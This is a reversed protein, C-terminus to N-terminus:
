GSSEEPGTRPVEPLHTHRLQVPEAKQRIRINMFEVLVSFFMAFYAYGRLNLSHAAEANWGEVVLLVGILILFSLALMKMTPHQEVFRSIAGAAFVMVAAAILIATVMVPINGSLGIATIVSDLSFVIDILAIQVMVGGLTAAQRASGHGRETGELKDHIEITSKAILFGGGFLLILDRGSLANGLVTVVPETLRMVWTISLLLLIRTVVALAIGLQRGRAQQEAPLRGALIAIFIVNDIGLVIELATLTLLAILGEVSLLSAGSAVAADAALPLGGLSPSGILSHAILQLM